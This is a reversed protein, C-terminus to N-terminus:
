LKIQLSSIAQGWKRCFPLLSPNWQIKFCELILSSYGTVVIPLNTSDAEPRKSASLFIRWSSEAMKGWRENFAEVLAWLYAIVDHIVNFQTYLPVVRGLMRLLSHVWSRMKVVWMIRDWILLIGVWVYVLVSLYCAMRWRPSFVFDLHVLLTLLRMESAVRCGSFLCNDNVRRPWRPIISPFVSDFFEKGRYFPLDIRGSVYWECSWDFLYWAHVLGGVGIRCRYRNRVYWRHKYMADHYNISMMMELSSRRKRWRKRKRLKARRLARGRRRRQSGIKEYRKLLPRNWRDMRTSMRRWTSRSPLSSIRITPPATASSMDLTIHASKWPGTTSHLFRLSICDDVEGSHWAHMPLLFPLSPCPFSFALIFPKIVFLFFLLRKGSLNVM